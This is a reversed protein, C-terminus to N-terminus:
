EADPFLGIVDDNRSQPRAAPSKRHAEPMAAQQGEEDRGTEAGEWSAFFKLECETLDQGTVTGVLRYGRRELTWRRLDNAHFAFILQLVILSWRALPQLGAMSLGAALAVSLLIFAALILWMRHYFLWVLPFFIAWWAFGEKVFDVADAREAQTAAIEYPEHITYATM